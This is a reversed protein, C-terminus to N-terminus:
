LGILLGENTIMHGLHKPSEFRLANHIDLLRLYEEYKIDNDLREFNLQNLLKLGASM